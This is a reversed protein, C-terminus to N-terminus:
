TRPYHIYVKGTGVITHEAVRDGNSSKGDESTNGAISSLPDLASVIGIHHGHGDGNVSVILDEIAPTTTLWGQKEALQRIEEVNAMRPIPAKGQYKLDLVLTAFQACWSDGPMGGCWKQIAEVRLGRNQGITQAERVFLFLRAIELVTM